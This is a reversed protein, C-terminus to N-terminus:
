DEGFEERGHNLLAQRITARRDHASDFEWDFEALADEAALADGLLEQIRESRKDGYELPAEVRDALDDDMSVGFSRTMSACHM